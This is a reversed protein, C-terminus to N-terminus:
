RHRSRWIRDLQADTYVARGYVSFPSYSPSLPRLRRGRRFTQRAAAPKGREAQIRALALPYRWNTPENEIANRMEAEAAALEGQDEHALALQEYPTSGWPMANVAEEALKQSLALDGDQAAERSDRIRET